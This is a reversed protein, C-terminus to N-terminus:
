WAGIHNYTFEIPQSFMLLGDSESLFGDDRILSGLQVDVAVALQFVEIWGTITTRLDQLLKLAADVAQRDTTTSSRKTYGNVVFLARMKFEGGHSRDVVEEDNIRWVLWPGADTTSDDPPTTCLITPSTQFGNGVTVAELRAQLANALLYLKNAAQTKPTTSM